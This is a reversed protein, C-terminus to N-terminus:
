SSHADELAAVNTAPVCLGPADDATKGPANDPLQCTAVISAEFFSNQINDNCLFHYINFISVINTLKKNM